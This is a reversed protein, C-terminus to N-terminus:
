AIRVGIQRLWAECLSPWAGAPLDKGRLAFGHPADAFIHLEATGDRELLADYLRVANRVPVM